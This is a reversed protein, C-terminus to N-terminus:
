PQEALLVKRIKKAKKILFIPCHAIQQYYCLDFELKMCKQNLHLILMQSEFFSAIPVIKSTSLILIM